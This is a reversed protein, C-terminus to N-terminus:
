KILMCSVLVFFMYNNKLLAVGNLIKYLMCKTLLHFM